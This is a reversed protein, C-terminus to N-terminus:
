IAILVLRTCADNITLADLRRFCTTLAAVIRALSDFTTFAMNHGISDAVEQFHYHMRSVNL